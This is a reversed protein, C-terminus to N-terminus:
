HLTITGALGVTVAKLVRAIGAALGPSTIATVPGTCLVVIVFLVLLLFAPLYGTVNRRPASKRIEKM